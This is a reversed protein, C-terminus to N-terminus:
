RDHTYKEICWGHLQLSRMKKSPKRLNVTRGVDDVGQSSVDHCLVPSAAAVWQSPFNLELISRAVWDALLVESHELSAALSHM